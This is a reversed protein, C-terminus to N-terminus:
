KWEWRVAEKSIGEIAESELYKKAEEDGKAVLDLLAAHEIGRCRHDGEFADDGERGAVEVREERCLELADGKM